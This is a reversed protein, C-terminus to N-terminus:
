SSAREQAAPVQADSESTVARRIAGLDHEEAVAVTSGSPHKGIGGLRKLKKCKQMEEGEGLSRRKEGRRQRDVADGAKGSSSFREETLYRWVRASFLREDGKWSRLKSGRSELRLCGTKRSVEGALKPDQKLTNRSPFKGGIRNVPMERIHQALEQVDEPIPKPTPKPTLEPLAPATRLEEAHAPPALLQDAQDPLCETSPPAHEDDLQITASPTIHRQTAVRVRIKRVCLDRGMGEYELELITTCAGSVSPRHAPSM